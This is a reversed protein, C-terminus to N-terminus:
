LNGGPPHAAGGRDLWLKPRLNAKLFAQTIQAMLDDSERAHYLHSRCRCDTCGFGPVCDLADGLTRSLSCESQHGDSSEGVIIAKISAHQLLYDIHWHVKKSSQLHRQLRPALGGMASGVYVHAGSRFPIPGLKGVHIERAESLDLVLAYSGKL